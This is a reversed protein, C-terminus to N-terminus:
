TQGMGVSPLDPLCRLREDLGHRVCDQLVVCEILVERQDIRDPEPVLPFNTERGNQHFALEFPRLGAGLPRLAVGASVRDLGCGTQMSSM